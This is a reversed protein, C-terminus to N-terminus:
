AGHFINDVLIRALHLIALALHALAMLQQREVVQHRLVCVGLIQSFTQWRTEVSLGSENTLCGHSWSRGFTDCCPACHRWCHREQQATCCLPLTTPVDWLALSSLTHSSAVNICGCKPPEITCIQAGTPAKGRVLFARSLLCPSPAECPLQTHHSVEALLHLLSNRFLCVQFPNLRSVNSGAPDRLTGHTKEFNHRHWRILDRWLEM